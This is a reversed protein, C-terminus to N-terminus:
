NGRMALIAMLYTLQSCFVNGNTVQCRCLSHMWPCLQPSLLPVRNVMLGMSKRTKNTTLSESPHWVTRRKKAIVAGGEKQINPNSLNNLQGAFVLKLFLVSFCYWNSHCFTRSSARTLEVSDVVDSGGLTKRRTHLPVSPLPCTSWLLSNSM